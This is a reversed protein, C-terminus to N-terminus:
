RIRTIVSHIESVAIPTTSTTTLAELDGSRGDSTSWAVQWEWTATLEMGTEAGEPPLATYTHGCDPSAGDEHVQPTYVTGPGQCVVESGDGTNWVVRDPTATVNVSGASVSATATVPEWSAGDVWMWAPMNVFRPKGLPPATGIEPEPPSMMARAQEALAAPEFPTEDAQQSRGTGSTDCSAVGPPAALPGEKGSSRFEADDYVCSPGEGGETDGSEPNAGSPQSQSPGSPQESPQLQEPTAAEVQCEGNSCETNALLDSAQVATATMLAALVGIAGTVPLNFAFPIERRLM